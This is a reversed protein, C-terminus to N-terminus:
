EEGVPLGDGALRDVDAWFAAELADLEVGLQARCEEEFRGPRCAFYLRLFRDAGCKQLVFPL